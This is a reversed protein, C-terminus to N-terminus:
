RGRGAPVRSVARRRRRRGSTSAALLLGLAAIGAAAAAPSAAGTDPLATITANSVSSAVVRPGDGAGDNNGGHESGSGLNALPYSVSYASHGVPPVECLCGYSQDTDPTADGKGRYGAGYWLSLGTAGHPDVDFYAGHVWHYPSERTGGGALYQPGNYYRGELPFHHYISSDGEFELGYGDIQAYPTCAAGPSPNFFKDACLNKINPSHGDFPASVNLQSASFRGAWHGDAGPATSTGAPIAAFDILMRHCGACLPSFDAAFYTLLCYPGHTGPPAPIGAPPAAVVRGPPVTSGDAAAHMTETGCTGAGLPPSSDEPDSAYDSIPVLQVTAAQYSHWTRSVDLLPGLAPVCQPLQPLHDCPSSGQPLATQAGAIVAGGAVAILAGSLAALTTRLLPRPSRSV